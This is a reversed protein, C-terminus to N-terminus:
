TRLKQGWKRPKSLVRSGETQATKGSGSCSSDVRGSRVKQVAERYREAGPIAGKCICDNGPVAVTTLLLAAARAYVCVCM